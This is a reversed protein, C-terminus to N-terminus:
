IVYPHEEQKYYPATIIASTKDMLMNQVSLMGNIRKAADDVVRRMLEVHEEDSMYIPYAFQVIVENMNSRIVKYVPESDTLLHLELLHLGVQYTYAFLIENQQNGVFRMDIKTVNLSIQYQQNSLQYVVNAETRSDSKVYKRLLLALTSYLSGAHIRLEPEFTEVFSSMKQQLSVVMSQTLTYPQLYPEVNKDM